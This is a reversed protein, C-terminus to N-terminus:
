SVSAPRRSDGLPDSGSGGGLAREILVALDAARPEQSADIRLHILFERNGEAGLIPSAVVGHVSWGAASLDATLRTLVERHLVPNRVIGGRGVQGRGVEFQPKVLAVVDLSGRDLCAMVAPLVLRLSIFSVDVTALSPRFPLQDPRLHRANAGEIPWVRPDNRLTWDLQGHGVDLAIVRSAGARLLAQTFGGTSAGVDLADRTAVDIPFTALAAELKAGSRSVFSRQPRVSLPLDAPVRTGPKDLCAEGSRVQGALILAQARTRSTALGRDVLLQDLRARRQRDDRM